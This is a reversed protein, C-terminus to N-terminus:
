PESLKKQLPQDNFDEKISVMTEDFISARRELLNMSPLYDLAM